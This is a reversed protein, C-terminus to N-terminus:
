RDRDGSFYDRRAGRRINSKENELEKQGAATAEGAARQARELTDLRSEAAAANRQDLSARSEAAKTQSKKALAYCVMAIFALIAMGWGKLKSIM